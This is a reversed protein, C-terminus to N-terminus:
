ITKQPSTETNASADTLPKSPQNDPIASFFTHAWEILAKEDGVPPLPPLSPFFAFPTSFSAETLPSLECPNSSESDNDSYDSDNDFMDASDGNPSAPLAPPTPSAPQGNGLKRRKSPPRKTGRKKLCAIFVARCREALIQSSNKKVNLKVTIVNPDPSTKNETHKKDVYGITNLFDIL